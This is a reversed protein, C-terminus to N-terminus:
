AGLLPANVPDVVSGTALCCVVACDRPVLRDRILIASLM